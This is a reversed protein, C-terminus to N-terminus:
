ATTEVVTPKANVTYTVCFDVDGTEEPFRVDPCNLVRYCMEKYKVLADKICSKTKRLSANVKGSAREYEATKDRVLSAAARKKAQAGAADTTKDPLSLANLAETAELLEKSLKALQMESESSYNEVSLNSIRAKTRETTECRTMNDSVIEKISPHLLGYLQHITQGTTSPDM